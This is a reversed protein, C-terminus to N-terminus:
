VTMILCIFQYLVRADNLQERLAVNLVPMSYSYSYSKENLPVLHGDETQLLFLYELTAEGGSHTRFGEKVSCNLAFASFPDFETLLPPQEQDSNSTAIIDFHPCSVVNPNILTVSYTVSGLQGSPTEASFTFDLTSQLKSDDKWVLGSNLQLYSTTLNTSTSSLNYFSSLPSSLTSSLEVPLHFSISEPTFDELGKVEWWSRRIEIGRDVVEAELVVAPESLIRRWNGGVAPPPTPTTTQPSSEEEVLVLPASLGRIVLTPVWSQTITVWTKALQLYNELQIVAFIDSTGPPM